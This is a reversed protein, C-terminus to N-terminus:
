PGGMFSNKSDYGRGPNFQGVSMSDGRSENMYDSESSLEYQDLNHILPAQIGFAHGVTANAGSGSNLNFPNAYSMTPALSNAIYPGVNIPIQKKLLNEEAKAKVEEESYEARRGSAPRGM